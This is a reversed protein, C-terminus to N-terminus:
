GSYGGMTLIEDDSIKVVCAYSFTAGPPGHPGTFISGDDRWDTISALKVAFIKVRDHSHAEQKYLWNWLYKKGM